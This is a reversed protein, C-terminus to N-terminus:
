ERTGLLRAVNLLGAGYATTFAKGKMAPLKDASRRLLRQVKEPSMRGRTALLMAVAATVQPCAMSTGPWADYRTNRRLPNNAGASRRGSGTARYGFEGGYVPLTSWVDVGPACITIHKGTCSFNAAEGAADIAGVAIVGPVAAPYSARSRHAVSNGMAAVLVTGRALLRDFLAQEHPDPVAPGGISMNIVDVKSSACLALASRYALPNVYYLRVAEGSEEAPFTDADFIKYVSLRCDCMGVVGLDHRKAAIIGSVHTGHGIVDDAPFQEGGLHRIYDHVRGKLAPHRRDVGTDLVAVHVSRPERFSRLARAEHLKIADHHWMRIAPVDSLGGSKAGALFYRAPVRAVWEVHPDDAMAEHLAERDAANKLNVFLAGTHAHRRDHHQAAAILANGSAGAVHREARVAGNLARVQDLRGAGELRALASLGPAATRFETRNTAHRKVVGAAAPHIRAILMDDHYPQAHEDSWAIGLM